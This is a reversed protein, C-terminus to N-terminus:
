RSRVAIAGLVVRDGDVRAGARFPTRRELWVALRALPGQVMGVPVLRSGDGPRYLGVSLWYRAPALGPPLPLPLEHPDRLRDGLLWQSTGLMGHLPPGDGQAVPRPENPGVLHVFVTYDAGAAGLAQWYLTATAAGGPVARSTELEYGALRIASGFDVRLPTASEPPELPHEPRSVTLTGLRLRDETRGAAAVSLRRGDARRYAAGELTYEGPPDGVPVPVDHWQILRDGVRWQDIPYGVGDLQGWLSGRAGIAHVFFSLDGEPPGTIRWSLTM